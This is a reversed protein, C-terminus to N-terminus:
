ESAAQSRFISTIQKGHFVSSAVRSIKVVLGLGEWTSARKLLLNPLM